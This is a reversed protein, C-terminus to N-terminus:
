KVEALSAEMEARVRQKAQSEESGAAVAAAAAISGGGDVKEDGQGAAAATGSAAAQEGERAQAWKAAAETDGPCAKVAAEAVVGHM